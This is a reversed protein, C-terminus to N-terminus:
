KDFIGSLYEITRVAAGENEKMAKAANRGLRKRLEPNDLLESFNVSLEDVLETQKDHEALQILAEHRKFEEVVSAFNHTFPGTLIPRGAAAPELISQGGHPILSGGVFVIDALQYAGRLEGISDLLIVEANKDSDSVPGSRRAVPRGRDSITDAVEDFRQPHRPAIMLRFDNQVNALSRLILNEEPEHTSAAVIMPIEGTIGFRERLESSVTSDREDSTSDFKLNGTVYVRTPEIELQTIREADPTSQMLALDVDDLVQKVFSRATSYRSFSRESLRGNVIAVAAGSRKAEHIFRPWIETEM